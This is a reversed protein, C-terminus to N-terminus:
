FNFSNKIFRNKKKIGNPPQQSTKELSVVIVLILEINNFEYICEIDILCKENKFLSLICNLM